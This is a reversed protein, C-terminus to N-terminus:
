RAYGNQRAWTLWREAVKHIKGGEEPPVPQARLRELEQEADTLRRALM